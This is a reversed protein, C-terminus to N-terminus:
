ALREHIGVGPEYIESFKEVTERKFRYTPCDSGTSSPLIIDPKLKGSQVMKEITSRVVFFMKAIDGTTLCTEGDYEPLGYRRRFADVTSRKFKRRGSRGLSDSSMVYDPTLLGINIYRAVVSRSVWLNKAVEGVSMLDRDRKSM